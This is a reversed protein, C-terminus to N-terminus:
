RRRDLDFDASSRALHDSVRALSQTPESSELCAPGPRHATCGGTYGRWLLSALGLELVRQARERRRGAIMLVALEVRSM